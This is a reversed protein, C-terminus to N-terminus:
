EQALQQYAAQAAAQEAAKKSHGSGRGLYRGDLWVEAVFRESAQRDGSRVCYTPRTQYHAQTWAQLADKYNQRAPDARIRAAEAQMIPDLWPRVLRMDRTSLYLAGLVAEFSDALPSRKGMGSGLESGGLYLYREWGLRQAIDALVRDSVMVSRLAAFEGVPCDPYREWLLESTALRVVADGVFELQQYNAESCASPHTLALDLLQWDIADQEALGLHQVLRALEKRRRADTAVM